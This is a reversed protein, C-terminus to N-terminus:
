MDDGEAHLLGQMRRLVLSQQCSQLAIRSRDRHNALTFVRSQGNYSGTQLYDRLGLGEAMAPQTQIHDAIGPSFM